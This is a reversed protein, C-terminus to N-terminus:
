RQCGMGKEEIKEHLAGEPLLPPPATSERYILMFIACARDAQANKM